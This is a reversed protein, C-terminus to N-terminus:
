AGAVGEAAVTASIEFARGDYGSLDIDAEAWGDGAEPLSVELVGGEIRAAGCARWALGPVREWVFSPPLATSEGAAAPSTGTGAEFVTRASGPLSTALTACLVACLLTSNKM